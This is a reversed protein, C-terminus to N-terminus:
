LPGAKNVKKLAKVIEHLEHDALFGNIYVCWSGIDQEEFTVEQELDAWYKELKALRKPKSQEITNQM